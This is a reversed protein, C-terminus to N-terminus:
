RSGNRYRNLASGPRLLLVGVACIPVATVVVAAGGDGQFIWGRHVLLPVIVAIGVAAIALGVATEILIGLLLKSM